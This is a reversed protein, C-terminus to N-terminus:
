VKAQNQRMKGAELWQRSNQRKQKLENVSESVKKFAAQSHGFSQGGTQNKPPATCGKQHKLLQDYKFTRECFKCALLSKSKWIKVALQNLTELEKDTITDNIEKGDALIPEPPLPRKKREM